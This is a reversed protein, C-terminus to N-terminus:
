NDENIAAVFIKGYDELKKPGVGNIESLAGLTAPKESAMEILTNDSFVVYAPVNRTRALELRLAKLRTLLQDDADSLHTTQATSKASKRSKKREPGADAPIERFEFGHTGQLIEHGQDSIELCGYKQINISLSGGAVMQRIFAQWYQKSRDKGVGFTPLKDHGRELVKQNNSGRVVDIIHAAGFYQGTRHIASLVMRAHETGDVRKPPNLCTDCNGCADTKEDFYSLLTRRRCQSAECYALLGDLRKHERLKHADDKGDQDIFMRRMRIDDLGYLMLTEAPKGDRGARGIEQYYAEVSSPLNLHCVYRIDPKDIGMGFAITAVMIVANESMFRDQNHKRVQSDQGAHYAIANFGEDKLFGAVEETYKRSLCYIIGCDTKKDELFHTLQRRWNDKNGVALKLNPRDFGQVIIEGSDPFLKGAIDNRTAEDATATFAGFTSQPFREKLMSLMEYEPRFNAGWKSICHAEDVIFMGVSLSSLANLMREAMLREPSMYVITSHGDRVALWAEVQDDRTMGSHICVANVDIARLAAVQDDMLAVLPSIVVTITESLVAPIQYCLSKGGGTPMIALVNDGHLLHNIIKEQGERFQSFGFIQQLVTKATPQAMSEDSLATKTSVPM